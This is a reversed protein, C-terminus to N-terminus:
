IELKVNKNTVHFLFLKMTIKSTKAYYTGSFFKSEPKKLEITVDSVINANDVRTQLIVSKTSKDLRSFRFCM